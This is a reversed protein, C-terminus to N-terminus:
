LWQSQRNQNNNRLRVVGKLKLKHLNLDITKKKLFYSKMRRPYNSKLQNLFQPKQNHQVKVIKTRARENLSLTWLYIKHIHMLWQPNSQNVQKNLWVICHRYLHFRQRPWNGLQRRYDRLRMFQETRQQKYWLHQLPTCTQKAALKKVRILRLSIAKMLKTKLLSRMFNKQVIAMRLHKLFLRHVKFFAIM